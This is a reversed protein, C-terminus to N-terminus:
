SYPVTLIETLITYRCACIRVYTMSGDANPSAGGFYWAVDNSDMNATMAM